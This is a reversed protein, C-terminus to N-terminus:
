NKNIEKIKEGVNILKTHLEYIDSKSALEQLHAVDHNYFDISVSKYGGDTSILCVKMTTESFKYKGTKGLLQGNSQGSNLPEFTVKM